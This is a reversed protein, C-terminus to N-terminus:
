RYPPAYMLGGDTYLANIGRELGLPALHRDFIEGYNGVQKIVQYAFDPPLGLGVDLETGEANEGGLFSRINPDESERMEDVNDQTIGFEEAQITAYITWDVAQAWESDGDVVAPALPEKSFVEELIVLSEPGGSGEPYASRLAALQSGDSSWGDCQGNIFAEQLLDTDDFSEVSVTLGLREFETAVNGETTTGAAVCITTGDMDELAKFESDSAVMMRQGDYYNPQLFTLGDNGDRSATYTTNRVLVDIEGSQLAPIRADTEIPVAEGKEADGLVAAAIAKCFDVDFGVPDGSEDLTAFGPLDDRSGCRVSDNETVRALASGGASDAGTGDTEGTGGTEGTGETDPAVAGTDEEGDGDDDSCGAAILTIALLPATMRVYKRRM